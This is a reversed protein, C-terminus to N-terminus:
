LSHTSLRVKTSIPTIKIVNNLAHARQAPQQHNTKYLYWTYIFIDFKFHPVSINPAKPQTSDCQLQKILVCHQQAANIKPNIYRYRQGYSIKIAM